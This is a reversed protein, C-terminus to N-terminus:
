NITTSCMHKAIIFDSYVDGQKRELCPGTFGSTRDMWHDPRRELRLSWLFLLREGLLGRRLRTLEPPEIREATYSLLVTNHQMIDCPTRNHEVASWEQTINHRRQRPPLFDALASDITDGCPLSGLVPPSSLDQPHSLSVTLSLLRLRVPSSLM